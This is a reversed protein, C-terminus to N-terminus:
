KNYWLEGFSDSLATSLFLVKGRNLHEFPSHFWPKVARKQHQQHRKKGPPQGPGPLHRDGPLGGDPDQGPLVAPSLDAKGARGAPGSCGPPLDARDLERRHQQPRQGSGHRM